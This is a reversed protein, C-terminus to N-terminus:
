QAGEFPTIVHGLIRVNIGVPKGAREGLEYEVRDAESLYHHDAPLQSHHIFIDNGGDDPLAFGIGRKRDYSLVTALKRVSM